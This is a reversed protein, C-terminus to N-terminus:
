THVGKVKIWEKAWQEHPSKDSCFIYIAALQPIDHILSMIRQGLTGEIILFAKVDDVETLFDICGDPQTFINVENVVSQLQALTNQCDPKSEDINGDVWVLLFNQAIRRRPHVNHSSATTTTMAGKSSTSSHEKSKQAAM